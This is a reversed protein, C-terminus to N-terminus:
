KNTCNSSLFLISFLPPYTRHSRQRWQSIMGTGGRGKNLSPRTIPVRSTELDMPSPLNLCQPMIEVGSTKRHWNVSFSRYSYLCRVHSTRVSLLTKNNDLKMKIAHSPRHFANVTSAAALNAKFTISTSTFSELFNKNIVENRGRKLIFAYLQRFTPSVSCGPLVTVIQYVNGM